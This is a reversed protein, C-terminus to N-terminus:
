LQLEALYPAPFSVGQIKNLFTQLTVPRTLATTLSLLSTAAMYWKEDNEPVPKKNILETVM